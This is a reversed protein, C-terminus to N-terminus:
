FNINSNKKCITLTNKMLMAITMPGVGGPVPTIAKVKKRVDEFDVDGVIKGTDLRNIGVDVVISDEKVMDSTIFRPKGVASVLIDAQKTFDSINITKSHCITVTANEQLFMLSLPKGVINSRGIIVAHKGEIKIEYRKLLEIIGLPTCPLISFNGSFLNAQNVPNFGDVDKECSIFSLINKENIHKPLPLQVLIGHISPENNLDSILSLLEKDSINEDLDYSELYFGLSECTQKKKNVYLRSAEDNGVIIVALGPKIEYKDYLLKTEAKIEALIKKSIEKGDIIISM